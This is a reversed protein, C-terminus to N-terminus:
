GRARADGQLDVTRLAGLSVLKGALATIERVAIARDDSIGAVLESVRFPHGDAIAALLKDMWRRAPFRLARGHAALTVASPTQEWVVPFVPDAELSTGEHVEAGVLPASPPLTWFGQASVRSLWLTRLSEEVSGEMARRFENLAGLLAEPVQVPGSRRLPGAPYSDHWDEEGLAGGVIQELLDVMEGRPESHLDCTFHLSIHIADADSEGVHWYTSPWYLVSGVGGHLEIGSDRFPRYDFDYLNLQRHQAFPVPAGDAFAEFPWVRMTKSGHVVFTFVSNPDKHVAFPSIGYRAVMVHSSVVGAPLTGLEQFLDRAILRMSRWLDPSFQQFNNLLLTFPGGGGMRGLRALYDDLTTDTPHPLYPGPDVVVAAGLHYTIDRHDRITGRRLQEAAERLGALVKEADCLPSGIAQFTAPKKEWHKSVFGPWDSFLQRELM